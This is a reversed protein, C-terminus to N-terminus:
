AYLEGFENRDRDWPVQDSDFKHKRVDTVVSIYWKGDNWWLEFPVQIFVFTLSLSLSFTVICRDIICITANM